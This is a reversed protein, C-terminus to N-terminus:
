NGSTKIRYNLTRWLILAKIYYDKKGACVDSHKSKLESLIVEVVDVYKPNGAEFKVILEEIVELIKGNHYEKDSLNDIEMQKWERELQIVKDATWGDKQLDAVIVKLQHKIDPSIERLVSDFWTKTLAKSKLTEDYGDIKEANCKNEIETILQQYFPTVNFDFNDFHKKFFEQLLDRIQRDPEDYSLPSKILFTIELLDEVEKDKFGTEKALDKIKKKADDSYHDTISVQTTVSSHFKTKYQYSSNSVVHLGDVMKSLEPPLNKKVLLLKGLISPKDKENKCLKPLTIPTQHQSSKVQYVGMKQPDSESDLVSVDDYVEFLMVYDKGSMHLDILKKISWHNQYSFGKSARTGGLNSIKYSGISDKVTM